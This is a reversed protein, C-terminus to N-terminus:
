GKVRLVIGHPLELEIESVVESRKKSDAPFVELFREGSSDKLKKRWNQFTSIALSEARCFEEQSKGSQEWKSILSRWESRPRRKTRIQM